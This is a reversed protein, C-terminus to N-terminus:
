YFIRVFNVTIKEMSKVSQIQMMQIMIEDIENFMSNLKKFDNLKM